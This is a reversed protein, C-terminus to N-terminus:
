FFRLSVGQPQNYNKATFMMSSQDQTSLSKMLNTSDVTEGRLLKVLEWYVHPHMVNCVTYHRAPKNGMLSRVLFHKGLNSLGPFFRKFNPVPRSDDSQLFLVKTTSNILMSQRHDMVCNTTSVLKEKEFQAVILSNVIMRAYNSHKYGTAPKSGLNGDLSYGGHFFKSIDRGINHKIVFAGGPHHSVFSSVDLVVEDLIMLQQGHSIQDEFEKLSM